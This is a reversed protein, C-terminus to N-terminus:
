ICYRKLMSMFDALITLGFSDKSNCCSSIGFNGRIEDLHRIEHSKISKIFDINEKTIEVILRLKIDKEKIQKEIRQIRDKFLNCVFSFMITDWVTDFGKEAINMSNLAMELMKNSDFIVETIEPHYYSSEKLQRFTHEDM